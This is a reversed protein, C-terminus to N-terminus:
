RPSRAVSSQKSDTLVDLLAAVTAASKAPSKSFLIMSNASSFHLRDPPLCIPPRMSRGGM